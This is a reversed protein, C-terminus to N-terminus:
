EEALQIARTIVYMLVISAGVTLMFQSLLLLVGRFFGFTTAIGFPILAAVGVLGILKSLPILEVLLQDADLSGSSEDIFPPISSM